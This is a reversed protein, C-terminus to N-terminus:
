CFNLQIAIKKYIENIPRNLNMFIDIICTRRIRLKKNYKLTSKRQISWTEFMYQVYCM